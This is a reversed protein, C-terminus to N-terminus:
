SAATHIWVQAEEVTPVRGQSVLRGDIAVAPTSLVGRMAAIRLDEIKQVLDDGAQRGSRELALAMITATQKCRACGPGFVEILM